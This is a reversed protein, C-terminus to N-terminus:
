QKDKGTPLIMDIRCGKGPESEIVLEGGHDAMIKAATSLGLGTGDQKTTHFPKLASGVDEIGPGDDTISIKIKNNENSIAIDIIGDRGVAEISNKILNIVVQTLGDRDGLIKIESSPKRSLNINLTETQAKFLDVASEILENIEFESSKPSHSRAVVLFKEIISNLRNIEQRLGDIFKNYDDENSAPKIESKMRQITIGIANLPNRIEHAMSAALAGLESLRRRSEAVEELKRSDTIDQAVSIAGLIKGFTDMLPTATVFYKRKETGLVSEFSATRSGKIVQDFKFPDYPFIEIYQKGM